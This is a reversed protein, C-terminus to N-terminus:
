DREPAVPLKGGFSVKMEIPFTRKPVPKLHTDTFLANELRKELIEVMKIQEIAWKIADIEKPLLDPKIGNDDGESSVELLDKLVQIHEM